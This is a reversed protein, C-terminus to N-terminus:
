IAFQSPSLCTKALANWDIPIMRNRDAIGRVLGITYPFTPGFQTVAQKLEKLIKFPFPEHELVHMGNPYEDNPAIRERIIVPFNM